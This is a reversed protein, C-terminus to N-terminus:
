LDNVLVIILPTGSGAYLSEINYGYHDWADQETMGDREMLTDLIAGQDYVALAQGGAICGAGVLAEDLGDLLVADPQREALWEQVRRRREQPTMTM